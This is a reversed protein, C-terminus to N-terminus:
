LRLLNGEAIERFGRSVRPDEKVREWYRVALPLAIKWAELLTHDYTPLTFSRGADEGGSTPAYLMPLMDYVPALTARPMGPEWFFSLNGPHRDSNAILRGFSELVQITKLDEASIKKGRELLAASIAWNEARATWENELAALSLMGRRGRADVRDFRVVELFTRGGAELIRGEAAPIRAERLLELALSECLLLDRWREAAFTAGAPSFKVLVKRRTGDSNRLTAGFKPHEGGASSGAPQGDLATQACAVYRAGPDAADIAEEEDRGRAQFREFSEAGILLNGVLDEGRRAMADLADDPSWDLIRPPLRLEPHQHAFAKGLFGQPRLDDLFFPLGPYILPKFPASKMQVAFSHPHLALLKGLPIVEGQPSVQFLPIESGLTRIPRLAALKRNRAAGLTIISEPNAKTARFLTPQSTKLRSM